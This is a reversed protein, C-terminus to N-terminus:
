AGIAATLVAHESQDLYRSTLISRSLLFLLFLRVLGLWVLGFWVLGFWLLAVHIGKACNLLAARNKNPVNEAALEAVTKLRVMDAAVQKSHHRLNNLTTLVGIDTVLLQSQEELKGIKELVQANSLVSLFAAFEFFFFFRFSVFCSCFGLYFGWGVGFGFDFAIADGSRVQAKQDDNTERTTGVNETMLVNAAINLGQMEGAIIKEAKTLRSSLKADTKPILKRLDDDL